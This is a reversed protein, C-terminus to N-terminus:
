EPKQRAVSHLRLRAILIRDTQRDTQRNTLHTFQLL